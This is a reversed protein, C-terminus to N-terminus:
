NIFYLTALKRYIKKFVQSNSAGELHVSVCVAGHSYQGTGEGYETSRAGHETSRAGHEM